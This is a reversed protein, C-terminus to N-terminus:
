GSRERDREEEVDGERQCQRQEAEERGRERKRERFTLREANPQGGRITLAQPIWYRQHLSSLIIVAIAPAM